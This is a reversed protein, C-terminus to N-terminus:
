PGASVHKHWTTRKLYILVHMNDISYNKICIKVTYGIMGHRQFKENAIYNEYM